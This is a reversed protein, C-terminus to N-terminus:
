RAGDPFRLNCMGPRSRKTVAEHHFDDVMADVRVDHLAFGPPSFQQPWSGAAQGVLLGNIQDEGGAKVAASTEINPARRFSTTRVVASRM